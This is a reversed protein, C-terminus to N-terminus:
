VAQADVKQITIQISVRTRGERDTYENRSVKGFCRLIKGPSFWKKADALHNWWNANVFYNDASKGMPFQAHVLEASDKKKKEWLANVRGTFTVRPEEFGPGFPEYTKILEDQFEVDRMTLASVQYSFDPEKEPVPQFDRMDRALLTRVTELNERRISLGAAMAHGGAQVLDAHAQLLHILNAGEVSRASGKFVDPDNKTPSLVACPVQFRETLHTATLGNVGESFDDSWVLIFPHSSLNQAEIMDLAVRDDHACLERRMLNLEVLARIARRCDQENGGDYSLLMNVAHTAEGTMRGSANLLPGYYFGITDGHISASKGLFEEKLFGWFGEGKQIIQLGKRAVYHNAPNMPVHDTITALGAYAYLSELFAAHEKACGLREYLSFVVRRALEAGCFEEPTVGNALDKETQIIAKEDLFPCEEPLPITQIHHDTVLVTVDQKLAFCVADAANIGNDCTILTKTEPYRSLCKQMSSVTINYGDDYRNNIFWHVGDKKLRLLSAYLIYVAMIGDADYDGYITLDGEDTVADALKQLLLDGNLLDPVSRVPGTAELISQPSYKRTFTNM